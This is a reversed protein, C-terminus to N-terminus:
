SQARTSLCVTADTNKHKLGNNQLEQYEGRSNVSLCNNAEPETFLSLCEGINVSGSSLNPIFETLYKKESLTVVNFISTRDNTEFQVDIVMRKNNYLLLSTHM